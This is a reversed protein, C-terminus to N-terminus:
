CESFQIHGFELNWSYNGIRNPADVILRGLDYIYLCRLIFFLVSFPLIM